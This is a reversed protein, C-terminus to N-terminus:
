VYGLLEIDLRKVSALSMNVPPLLTLAPTDKAYKL